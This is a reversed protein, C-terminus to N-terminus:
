KAVLFMTEATLVEGKGYTLKAVVKYLGVALQGEFRKGLDETTDPALDTEKIDIKGIVRGQANQLEIVGELNLPVNGINKVRLMPIVQAGVKVTPVILESIEAKVIRKGEIVSFKTRLNETKGVDYQVTAVAVYEGVPLGGPLIAALVGDTGPELKVAEIRVEAVIAGEQNSVIINGQPTLDLNGTNGCVVKFDIPLNSMAKPAPFDRLKGRIQAIENPRLVEFTTSAEM